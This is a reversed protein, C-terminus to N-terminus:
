LRILFARSLRLRLPLSQPRPVPLADGPASSLAVGLWVRHRALVSAERNFLQVLWDGLMAPRGSNSRSCDCQGIIIELNVRQDGLVATLPGFRAFASNECLKFLGDRKRSKIRRRFVVIKVDLAVRSRFLGAIISWILKFPDTIARSCRDSEAAASWSSQTQPLSVM